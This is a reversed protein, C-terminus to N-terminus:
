LHIKGKRGKASSKQQSCGNSQVPNMGKKKVFIRSSVSEQTLWAVCYLGPISDGFPYGFEHIPQNNSTLHCSERAKSLCYHLGEESRISQLLIKLM